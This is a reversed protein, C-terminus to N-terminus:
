HLSKSEPSVFFSHLPLLCVMFMSSLVLVGFRIKYDRKRLPEHVPGSSSSQGVELAAESGVREAPADSM